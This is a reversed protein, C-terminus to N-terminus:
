FECNYLICTGRMHYLSSSRDAVCSEILDEPWYYLQMITEMIDEETHGHSYLSNVKDHYRWTRM